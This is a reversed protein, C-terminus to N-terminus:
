GAEKPAEQVPSTQQCGAYYALRSRRSEVIGAESIGLRGHGLFISHHMHHALLPSRM